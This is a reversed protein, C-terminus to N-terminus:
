EEEDTLMFDSMTPLTPLNSLAVDVKRKTTERLIADDRLAEPTVGLLADELREAMATMQPDGTVNCDRLLAVMETVNSVLTNKFTKAGERVRVRRNGRWEHRETEEYDLRESMNALAKYLREWVNGLADQLNQEYSAAYSARLRDLEAQAENGLDVRFDGADPLPMYNLTWVFRSRLKSASPYDDKNYADGLLIQAQQVSDEYVEMFKDVLGYFEQESKTMSQHYDFYRTTPLLRLGSNSWPLTHAYHVNVRMSSRWKGIADLEECKGLLNKTARFVGDSAHTANELQKSAARDLLKGTWTKINLEVLMASSSLSPLKIDTEM